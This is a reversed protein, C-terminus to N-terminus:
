YLGDLFESFKESLEEDNYKDKNNEVWQLEKLIGGFQLHNYDSIDYDEIENEESHKIWLKWVRETPFQAENAENVQNENIKIGAIKQMQIFEENLPKKM